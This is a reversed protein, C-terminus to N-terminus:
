DRHKNEEKQNVERQIVAELDRWTVVCSGTESSETASYYEATYMHWAKKRWQDASPCGPQKWTRATTFLATTFAPARTDKQILIKEPNIGV